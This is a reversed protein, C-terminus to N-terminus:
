SAGADCSSGSCCKCSCCVPGTTTCQPDQGAAVLDLAEDSLAEIQLDMIEGLKNQEV